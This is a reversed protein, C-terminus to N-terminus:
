PQTSTGGTTPSAPAANNAPAAPTMPAPAPAQDTVAPPTTSSTTTPDTTSPASMQMWIFGGVLLVAIVAVWPAWGASKRAAEPTTRLEPRDPRLNPDRPLNPDFTM